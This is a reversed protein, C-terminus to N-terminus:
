ELEVTLQRSLEARQRARDEILLEIRHLGVSEKASTVTLLWPEKTNKNPLESGDLNWRYNLSLLASRPIFFPEAILDFAGGASKRMAQIARSVDMGELPKVEYLNVQYDSEPVLFAAEQLITRQTNQVIVKIEDPRRGNAPLTYPFISKNKGSAERIAEGNILWTYALSESLSAPLNPRAQILITAGPSPLAKGKYWNPIYADTWWYFSIDSSSIYRTKEARRGNPTVATARIELPSSGSGMRVSAETVGRGGAVRKGNSFWAIEASKADFQFSQLALLVDEGPRPTEPTINISFDISFLAENRKLILEDAQTELQRYARSLASLEVPFIRETSTTAANGAKKDVRIRLSGPEDPAVFAAVNAGPGSLDSRKTENIYWTFVATEAISSGSAEAVVLERTQVPNPTATIESVAGATGTLNFIANLIDSPLTQAFSPLALSLAICVAAYLHFRNKKVARNYYPRM